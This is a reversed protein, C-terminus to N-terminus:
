LGQLSERSLGREGFLMEHYRELLVASAEVRKAAVEEEILRKRLLFDVLPAPPRVRTAGAGDEALFEMVLRITLENVDLQCALM